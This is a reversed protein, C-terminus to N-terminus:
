SAALGAYRRNHGRDNRSLEITFRYRRVRIKGRVPQGRTVRVQGRKALQPLMQTGPQYAWGHRRGQPLRDRARGPLRIYGRAAM